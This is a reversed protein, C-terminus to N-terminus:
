DDARDKARLSSLAARLNALSFPQFSFKVIHHGAPVEVARFLVNARLLPQQVGDVRVEWGPYYLDHLVLVGARDSDVEVVVRNLHYAAISVHSNADPTGDTGDILGYDGHVLPLSADDILVESARDFQPFQQSELVIASDLPLVKTALYARPAAAGLRYIFMREGSYILTARSRPIHRPLKAFPQDLVLYELGLLAALRSKYGRFTGPFHRLNSDGANEGPGVAREYDSIRLPNYGITDELGFVMSANMWAGGLGLIEVRPRQGQEVRQAIDARLAALGEAEVATMGAYASYRSAPEANLPSAANHALIDAASLAVLVAAAVSRRNLREGAVIVGAGLAALALAPALERLSGGLHGNGHSFMLASVILLAVLAATVGYLTRIVWPAPRRLSWPLGNQIYRHLLYGAAMAAALNVLFTADAPRRYLDIGPLHDFITEFLPTHSGLAYIVAFLGAAMFMRLRLAMLRAGGVGHWLILLSPITGIFLYNINRDTWDPQDSTVFGPGFYSYDTNLSGFFNACFLTIFNLPSLSGTVAVGYSIGPRNSASLFQLTLLAPVAILAAGVLAMFALLPLRRALWRLPREASLARWVVCLVLAACCLFAVQDRGLAMLAATVGFALGARYSIKELAAELAWLAIPFWSYSVIMGTHQLRAAASGGLMFIVAALVAGTPHWGHRRFIMLVGIGGLMLQCLVIFDFTQMAAHPAIFAFLLMTPSFLGSQPDAVTPHGSFHYPNWLPWEGRALSDGLFRFMPYFHNKSDWPVVTGTLRWFLAAGITFLALALIALGTM